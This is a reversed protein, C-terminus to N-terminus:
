VGGKKSLVYTFSWWKCKKTSKKRKLHLHATCWQICWTGAGFSVGPNRSDLFLNRKHGFKTSYIKNASSNDSSHQNGLSPWGPQRWDTVWSSGRDKFTVKFFGQFFPDRLSVMGFLACVRLIALIHVKAVLFARSRGSHSLIGPKELPVIKLQLGPRSLSSFPGRWAICVLSMKIPIPTPRFFIVCFHLHITWQHYCRHITTKAIM